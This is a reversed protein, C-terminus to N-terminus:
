TSTMQILNPHVSPLESPRPSSLCKLHISYFRCFPYLRNSAGESRSTTLEAKVMYLLTSLFLIERTAWIAFCRGILRSVRTWNRPRSSEGPSHFPLGSWYEQKSFGMSLPAQYAVTWPTAFLRVRSLLKM